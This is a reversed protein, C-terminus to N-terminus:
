FFFVPGLSWVREETAGLLWGARDILEARALLKDLVRHRINVRASPPRVFVAGLCFSDKKSNGPTHGRVRVQRCRRAGAPSSVGPIFLAASFVTLPWANASRAGAAEHCRGFHVGALLASPSSSRSLAYRPCNYAVFAHRPSM